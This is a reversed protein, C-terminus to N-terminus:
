WNHHALWYDYAGAWSGYRGKAYGTAWRLQTVPNTMWDGGATSMKTGPTAQVLGYGLNSPVSSPPFAPCYGIQGQLKTPCWGSERSVIYNVYAYDSEPIGAAAMLASSDGPIYVAKGRAVIQKVAPTAIIEQIVRRSIEKGDKSEILYTTVKKGASGKQRIATTGFSLKFDDVYELPMPIEQEVLTIQSGSRLVFIQLNATLVTEPSPQLTDGTALKIGKEDILQQVTKAHTRTPIATGYLNLYVPTARAIVVKQGLVGERLVSENSTVTVTDEPFLQFGAQVVVSRATTAASLAQSRKEGDFITVPRARYINIRFNDDL